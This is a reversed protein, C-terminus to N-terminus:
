TVNVFTLYELNLFQNNFQDPLFQSVEDRHNLDSNKEWEEVRDADGVLSGWCSSFVPLNM